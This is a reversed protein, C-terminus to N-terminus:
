EGKEPETDEDDPEPLGYIKSIEAQLAEWWGEPADFLVEIDGDDNAIRDSFHPTEEDAMNRGKQAGDHVATQRDPATQEPLVTGEPVAGGASRAGALSNPKNM